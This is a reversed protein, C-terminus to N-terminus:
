AALMAANDWSVKARQYIRSAERATDFLGLHHEKGERYLSARYKGNSRWVGRLGTVGLPLSRHQSQEQRTAWRCNSPTYNGDRDLRHPSYGKGPHPPMDALFNLFGRPNSKRWRACVQIGRGGYRHFNQVHPNSCRGRMKLWAVFTPTRKGRRAHGHKM